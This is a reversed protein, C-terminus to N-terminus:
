IAKSNTVRRLQMEAERIPSTWDGWREQWLHTMNEYWAIPKEPTGWRWCGEYRHLVVSPVGLSGALHAVSTDCTIVLDLQLLISATSTFDVLSSEVSIVNTRGALFVEEESTIEKQLSVFCYENLTLLSSFTELPISRRSNVRAARHNHNRSSGKWVIGIRPKLTSNIKNIADLPTSATPPISLYPSTDLDEPSELDLYFPISMMPIQYDIHHDVPVSGRILVESIGPISGIITGLTSPVEVHIHAGKKVLATLFRSFQITDGLGQEAIVLVHKNKIQSGRLLKPLSPRLPSLQPTRTFRCEYRQWGERYLGLQLLSTALGFQAEVNNIDSTIAERFHHVAESHRRQFASIIGLGLHAKSDSNIIGLARRFSAEAHNFAYLETLASAETIFDRQRKTSLSNLLDIAKQYNGLDVAIAAMLSTAEVHKPSRQLISTVLEYAVYSNGREKELYVNALQKSIQEDTSKPLITALIQDAEDLRKTAILLLSINVKVDFMEPHLQLLSRLIKESENFKQAKLYTLALNSRTAPEDFLKLSFSLSAVALDYQEAKLYCLGLLRHAKANSTEVKIIQDCVRIALDIEDALFHAIAYSLKLKESNNM